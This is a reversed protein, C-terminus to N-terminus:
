PTDRSEGARLDIFKINLRHKKSHALTREVMDNTGRGGPFAILTDPEHEDLMKQNRIPGAARGHAHWDAPETIVSVDFAPRIVIRKFYKVWQRALTDVGAAGGEIIVLEGDRLIRPDSLLHRDLSSWVFRRNTYDRGGTVLVRM